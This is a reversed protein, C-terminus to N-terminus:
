NIGDEGDAGDAGDAGPAGQAGTAGSAGPEGNCVWRVITVENPDLTTNNNLDLGVRIEIGGYTCNTNQDITLPYEPEM